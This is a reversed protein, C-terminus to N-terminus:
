TLSVQTSYSDDQGPNNAQMDNQETVMRNSPNLLM